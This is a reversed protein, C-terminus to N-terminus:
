EGLHRLMQEVTIGFYKCTEDIDGLSFEKDADPSLRSRVYFESRAINRAYERQSIQRDGLERRIYRAVARGFDSAGQAATGM